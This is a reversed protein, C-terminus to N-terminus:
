LALVREHQVRQRGSVASIVHFSSDRHIRPDIVRVRCRHVVMRRRRADFIHTGFVKIVRHVAAIKQELSRCM